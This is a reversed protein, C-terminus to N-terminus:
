AGNDPYNGFQGGAGAEATTKVRRARGGRADGGGIRRRPGQGMRGQPRSGVPMLLLLPLVNEGCKEKEKM